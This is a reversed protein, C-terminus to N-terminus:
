ADCVGRKRKKMGVYTAELYYNEEKDKRCSEDENGM